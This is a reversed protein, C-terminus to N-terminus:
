IRRCQWAVGRWLSDATACHAAIDHPFLVWDGRGLGAFGEGCQLYFRGRRPEQLLWFLSAQDRAPPEPGTGLWVDSHPEVCRMALAIGTARDVEWGEIPPPDIDIRSVFSGDAIKRIKALAGRPIGASGTAIIM